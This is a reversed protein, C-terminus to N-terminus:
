KRRFMDLAGAVAKFGDEGLADIAEDFNIEEDFRPESQMPEASASISSVEAGSEGRDRLIRYVVAEIHKEDIRAPREMDPTECCNEYHLIANVIYRAKGREDQRNLIDAAQLHLPNDRSFQINFKTGTKKSGM